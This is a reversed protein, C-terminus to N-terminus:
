AGLKRGITVKGNEQAEPASVTCLQRRYATGIEVTRTAEAHYRQAEKARGFHALLGGQNSLLHPNDPSLEIARQGLELAEDAVGRQALIRSLLAHASAANPELRVAERAAVEAEVLRESAAKDEAERAWFEALLPRAEDRTLASLADQDPGLAIGLVKTMWRGLLAGREVTGLSTIGAYSWFTRTMEVTRSMCACLLLCQEEASFGEKLVLEACQACHELWASLAYPRTWLKWQHHESSEHLRKIYLPEAVRQLTGRFALELNWITDAGFNGCANERLRLQDGAISRRVVGRFAVAAFHSSLFRMVRELKGGTLSDEIVWADALGFACIDSFAAAAEPFRSLEKLLREVYTTHILDDHSVLCFYETNVRDLLYNTNRVWGLRDEQAFVQFRRDETFGRCIELSDDDGRDVSILVELDRHSQNQIASLVDRVFAAGKYVPVCVAVKATM